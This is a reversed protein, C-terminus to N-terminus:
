KSGSISAPGVFHTVRPPINDKMLGHIKEQLVRETHTVREHQRLHELWSELMYSEIFHNPETVDELIDWVYAGDRKRSRGLQHILSLFESEKGEAVRYHIIIMVPRRDHTVQDHTIPPAWHMSSTLDIKEIGSIHWRWTVLITMVAGVAATILAMPIGTQKAVNGWIFSGGAMAGMFITMMISLGRSRVWNPLAMQAAVQVSSMVSIWAVGAMAMALSALLLDHMYGTIFMALAYLITAAAVLQDTSIYSRIKPLLLAGLVAGVGISAMLIGLTQPGGGLLQKAVLPLLAWLASAFVFFGISRILTAQLAPANLAFRVGTRIATVFREAPLSSEEATRRWRWLVVVVVSFTVANIMFVAGSGAAAIILGAVAPGVARSANVGIANLAIARHLEERPVLEPTIAALAPLMMATGIGLSFTLIILIWANTIGTLTLCGLVTAVLMMWMLAVILYRRRDFIDALAGAPIALLFVPLTSATQILAVMVPSTSLSTMLWGAAVDHMWTGVNSILTAIWLNRFVRIKFPSWPSAASTDQTM